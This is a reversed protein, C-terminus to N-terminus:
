EASVTGPNQSKFRHIRYKVGQRSINLVSSLDRLSLHNDTHYTYLLRDLEQSAQYAPDYPKPKRTGAKDQALLRLSLLENVQEDSLSKTSSLTM